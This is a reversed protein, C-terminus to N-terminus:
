KNEGELWMKLRAQKLSKSVNKFVLCSIKKVLVVPTAVLTGYTGIRSDSIKNNKEEEM